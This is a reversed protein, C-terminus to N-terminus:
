NLGGLTPGWPRRRGLKPSVDHAIRIALCLGMGLRGLGMHVVLARGEAVMLLLLIGLRNSPKLGKRHFPPQGAHEADCGNRSDCEDVMACDNVTKCPGNCSSIATSSLPLFIPNFIILSLSFWILMLNAM